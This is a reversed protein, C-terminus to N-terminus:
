SRADLEGREDKVYLCWRPIWYSQLGAQRNAVCVFCEPQNKDMGCNRCTKKDTM